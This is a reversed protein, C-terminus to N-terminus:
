AASSSIAPWAAGNGQACGRPSTARSPARQGNIRITWTAHVGTLLPCSSPEAVGKGDTLRGDDLVQLLANFVDPHAKEIEDLLIVAYPRRRVAETLKNNEAHLHQELGPLTSYKLESARALDGRRTAEEEQFRTQEIQEKLSHTALYPCM